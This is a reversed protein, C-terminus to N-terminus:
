HIVLDDPMAKLSGTRYSIGMVAVVDVGGALGGDEEFGGEFEFGGDFDGGELFFFVGGL